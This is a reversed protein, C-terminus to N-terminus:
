RRIDLLVSPNLIMRENIILGMAIKKLKSLVLFSIYHM